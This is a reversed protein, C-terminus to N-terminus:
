FRGALANLTRESSRAIPAFARQLGDVINNTAQATEVGGGTTNVVVEGITINGAAINGLATQLNAQQQAAVQQPTPALPVAFQEQFAGTAEERTRAQRFLRESEAVLSAREDLVPRMIDAQQEASLGLRNMEQELVPIDQDIIAIREELQRAQEDLQAVEFEEFLALFHEFGRQLWGFM